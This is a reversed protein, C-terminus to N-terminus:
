KRKGPPTWVGPGDDGIDMGFEAWDQPTCPVNSKELTCKPQGNRFVCKQKIYIKTPGACDSCGGNIIVEICLLRKDSARTMRTFPCDRAFLLDSDGVTPCSRKAYEKELRESIMSGRSLQEIKKGRVLIVKGGKTAQTKNSAEWWEFTCPKEEDARKKHIKFNLLFQNGYSSSGVVTKRGFCATVDDGPKLEGLDEYEVDKVCCCCKEGAPCKGFPDYGSPAFYAQFLNQGGLFGIPDRSGFRGLQSHYQRHRYYYRGTKADEAAPLTFLLYRHM